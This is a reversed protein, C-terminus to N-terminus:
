SGKISQNIQENIDDVTTHLSIALEKYLINQTNILLKRDLEALKKDQLEADLKKHLLTNVVKAIEIRDGTSIIESYLQQRVNPKDIWELVPQQFTALIEKAEDEEILEFMVIKDNQVPASITLHQNNEIPSLEYYNRTTGLITKECINDIKCIGHTSYIVLDGISFM